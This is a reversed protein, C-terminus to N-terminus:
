NKNVAVFHCVCVISGSTKNLSADELVLIDLIGQSVNTERKRVCVCVCVCVSERERQPHNHTTWCSKQLNRCGIFIESKTCQHMIATLLVPFNSMDSIDTSFNKPCYYRTFPIFAEVATEPDLLLIIVTEDIDFFTAAYADRINELFDVGDDVPEFTRREAKVASHSCDDDDDCASSEWLEVRSPWNNSISWYVALTLFTAFAAFHNTATM